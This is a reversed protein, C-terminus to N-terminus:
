MKKVGLKLNPFTWMEQNRQQLSLNGRPQTWKGALPVCRATASSFEVSRRIKFKKEDQKRTEGYSHTDGSKKICDSKERISFKDSCSFVLEDSYIEIKGCKKERECWCGKRWRKPAAKSAPIRLAALLASIASTSCIFFITGNTM